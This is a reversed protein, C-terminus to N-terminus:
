APSRPGTNSRGASTTSRSAPARAGGPRARRAGDRRAQARDSRRRGRFGPGRDARRCGARGACRHLRRRPRAHRQGRRRGGCHGDRHASHLAPLRRGLAAPAQAPSVRHHVRGGEALHAGSRHRHEGGSGRAARKRWRGRLDRARRDAGSRQRGGALCQLSQRRAVGPGAGPDLRDPQHGRGGRALGAQPSRMRRDRCRADRRRDRLRWGARSHRLHRPDEQYRRDPGAQGPRFPASGASRDRRVPGERRRLRRRPHSRGGRGDVPSYLALMPM